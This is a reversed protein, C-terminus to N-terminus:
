QGHGRGRRWGRRDDVRRAPHHRHVARRLVGPAAPAALGATTTTATRRPRATPRWCPPLATRFTQPTVDTAQVVVGDQAKITSNTGNRDTILARTTNEVEGYTVAGEITTSKKDTNVGVSAAGIGLVVPDYARM